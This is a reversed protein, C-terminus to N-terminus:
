TSLIRGMYLYGATHLATLEAWLYKEICWEVCNSDVCVIPHDMHRRLISLEGFKEDNTEYM